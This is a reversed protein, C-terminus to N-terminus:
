EPDLTIVGRTALEELLHSVEKRCTEPDVDYEEEMAACIEGFKRPEALLQWIWSASENLNLYSGSSVSMVIVEGGMEAALAEESLQITVNSQLM